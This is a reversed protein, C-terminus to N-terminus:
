PVAETVEYVVYSANRYRVPLALAKPQAPWAVFTRRAPSGLERAIAGADAVTLEHRDGRGPRSDVYGLARMRRLWEIGFAPDANMLGGDRWDAYVTREGDVRFEDEEGPPVIFADTVNTSSRAWRQVDRWLPDQDSQLSFAGHRQGLTDRVFSTAGSVCVIFAALTAFGIGQLPRGLWRRHIVTMTALALFLLVGRLFGDAGVFGAIGIAIAALVTGLREARALRQYCYDAVFLMMFYEVFAFSRLPQVVFAVGLPHFESFVVGAGCMAVIAWAFAAVAGHAESRAPARLWAFAFLSAVIVTHQLASWGWTLPFMHGWSRLRLAYIWAPDAAFLHLSPPSAHLRWLLMPSAIALFVGLGAALPKIGEQRSRLLMAALLM